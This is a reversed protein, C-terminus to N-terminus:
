VTAPDPVAQGELIGPCHAAIRARLDEPSLARAPHTIIPVGALHRDARLEQLRAETALDEDCIVLRPHVGFHVLAVADAIGGATLGRCGVALAADRFGKRGVPDVNIFLVIDDRLPRAPEVGTPLDVGFTSGVGPRSFLKITGNHADVIQRVIWLGLGFGGRNRSQTLREFRQFVLRQHEPAIGVGQDRVLLTAWGPRVEIVTVWVSKGAGYRLANSLLNIIVQELRSGDWRGRVESRPAEFEIPS